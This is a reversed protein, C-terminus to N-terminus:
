QRRHQKFSDMLLQYCQDDNGVRQEFSNVLATM